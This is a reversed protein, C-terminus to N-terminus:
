GLSSLDRYVKKRPAIKEVLVEKEKEDVWYIARYEGIRLRYLEPDSTGALKKVDKGSKSEIPSRSLEGLKEKVRESIDSSFKSLEKQAKPNLLIDYKQLTLTSRETLKM